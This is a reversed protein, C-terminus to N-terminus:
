PNFTRAEHAGIESEVILGCCANLELNM